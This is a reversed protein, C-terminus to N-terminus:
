RETPSVSVGYQEDAGVFNAVAKLIESIDSNRFRMTDTMREQIKIDYVQRPDELVAHYCGRYDVVAVLFELEIGFTLPTTM